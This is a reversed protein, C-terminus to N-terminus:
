PDVWEINDEATREVTGDWHVRVGGGHLLADVCAVWYDDGCDRAEAEFGDAIIQRATAQEADGM